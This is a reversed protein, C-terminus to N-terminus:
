TLDGVSGRSTDRPSQPLIGSVAARRPHLARDILDFWDTGALWHKSSLHVSWDLLATWSRVRNVTITCAFSPAKGCSHHRVAWQVPHTGASAHFVAYDASGTERWARLARDAADTDVELVGDGDQVLELCHDCVAVLEHAM